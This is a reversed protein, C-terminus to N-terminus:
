SAALLRTAEATTLPDVAPGLALAAQLDRRGDAVDGDALEIAGAHALLRADRTGTAMAIRSEVLAGQFQGLRYMAWAVVDHGTADPRANLAIWAHTLLADSAGGHDLEFLVLNRDYVSGALSSLSAIARVTDYQAKAGAPDGRMALLDGLLALTDPQPAIAAAHRLGTLAADIQGAAADVRALGVLSGLDNPRLALAAEYATRALTANGTLRATEGLQYAYFPLDEDQDALAADYAHQAVTVADAVQGTIIDLHAYRAELAAGAAAPSIARYTARADAIRGLELEADGLLARAGDDRENRDLAAEASVITGAFDHLTYQIQAMATHTPGNNPDLALAQVLQRRAQDYLDLDATLRAKAAEALALQALSLFDGPTQKVRAAWFAIQDNISLRGNAAAMAAPDNAGGAVGGLGSTDLTTPATSRAAQITSWAYSGAVVAIAAAIILLPRRSGASGIAIMQDEGM